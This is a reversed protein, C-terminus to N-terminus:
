MAASTKCYCHLPLLNLRLELNIWRSPCLTKIFPWIYTRSKDFLSNRRPGSTSWLTCDSRSFLCVFLRYRFYILIVIVIVVLCRTLLIRSLSSVDDKSWLDLCSTRILARLMLDPDLWLDLVILLYIASCDRM